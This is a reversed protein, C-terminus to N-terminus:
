TREIETRAGAARGCIYFVRGGTEHLGGYQERSSDVAGDGQAQEHLLPLVVQAGAVQLDPELVVGHEGAAAGPLLVDAVDAGDAVLEADGKLDHGELGLVELLTTSWARPSSLAPRVGLGSMRQLWRM